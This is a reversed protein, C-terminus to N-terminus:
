FLIHFSIGPIISSANKLRDGSDRDVQHGEIMMYIIGIIFTADPAFEFCMRFNAGGMLFDAERSRSGHDEITSPSSHMGVLSFDFTANTSTSAQIGLQLMAEDSYHEDINHRERRGGFIYSCVMYPEINGSQGSVAFGAGYSIVGEGPYDRKMDQVEVGNLKIRGQGDKRYGSPFVGIISFVADAGNTRRDALRIRLDLRTDEIGESYSEMEVKGLFTDAKMKGSGTAVYGTTFVADLGRSLGLGLIFNLDHETFEADVDIGGMDLEGEGVSYSYGFEGGVRGPELMDTPLLM